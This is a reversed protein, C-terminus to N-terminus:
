IAHAYRIELQKGSFGIGIKLVKHSGDRQLEEAYKRAEIQAMANKATEMLDKERKPKHFSTLPLVFANLIM